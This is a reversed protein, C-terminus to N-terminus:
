KVKYIYASGDSLDSFSFQEMGNGGQFYLRGFVSEFLPTTVVTITPDPTDKNILVTWGSGGSAANEGEYESSFGSETVIVRDVGLSPSEQGPSNISAKCTGNIDEISLELTEGNRNFRWGARGNETKFEQNLVLSYNDASLSEEEGYYGFTAFWQSIPLMDHTIIFLIEDKVHPFLLSVTEEAQEESLGKERLASLASERDTSLLESMLSLTDRSEGFLALMKETGKDGEGSLMRLINASLKEDKTSLAKGIWYVRMGNQSGGDFITRRGAKEEFFYGYDWWSALITGPATNSRINQLPTDLFRNVSPASDANSRYAGYLAPFICLLILMAAYAQWDMMKRDRLISCIKGTLLGALIASPVAFLMIFRWGRFALVLTSLYWVIFLIHDFRREGRITDRIFFVFMILALICPIAGGVANIIGINSGSLVKMQFLGTLGGAILSPKRMESVSVYTDPFLGSGGFFVSTFQDYLVTFFHRDLILIGAIITLFILAPPTLKEKLGAEKDKFSLACYIALALILIGAFLYYINWSLILLLLSIIFLVPFILRRPKKGGAKGKSVFSDMLLISFCFFLSSVWSIVTDTDYFGPVTHLFYGYNLGALIGATLAAILGQLRYAMIFVPIVVLVSLFAGQWYVTKELPFDGFHGLFGTLFVAIRAMLPSYNKASRGFPAYSLSDWPEGDKLEEGAHSYNMIDRTMRLHYYSDMETLYPVGTEPDMYDEGLRSSVTKGALIRLALSVLMILIILAAATVAPNLKRGKINM